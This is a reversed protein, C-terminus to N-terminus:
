IRSRHIFFDNLIFPFLIQSSSVKKNPEKQPKENLVNILM